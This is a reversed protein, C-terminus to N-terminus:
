PSDVILETAPGSPLAIGALGPEVQGEFVVQRCRKLDVPDANRRVKFTFGSSAISFGRSVAATSMAWASASATAKSSRLCTRLIRRHGRRAAGRTRRARCCQQGSVVDVFLDPRHDAMGRCSTTAAPPAVRRLRSCRLREEVLQGLEVRDANIAGFDVTHRGGPVSPVVTSRSTSSM